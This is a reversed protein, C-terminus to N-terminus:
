RRLLLEHLLITLLWHLLGRMLAVLLGYLLSTLLWHLLSLLLLGLQLLLIPHEALRRETMFDDLMQVESQLMLCLLMQEQLYAM